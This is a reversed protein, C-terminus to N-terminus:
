FILNKFKQIVNTFSIMRPNSDIYEKIPEARIEKSKENMENIEDMKKKLIQSSKGFNLAFVNKEAIIENNKAPINELSTKYKQNKEIFTTIKLGSFKSNDEYKEEYKEDMDELFTIDNDEFNFNNENESEFLKQLVETKEVIIEDGFMKLIKTLLDILNLLPSDMPTSFSENLYDLFDKLNDNIDNGELLPSIDSLYAAEKQLSVRNELDYHSRVVYDFFHKSRYYYHRFEHNKNLGFIEIPDEPPTNIIYEFIDKNQNRGLSLLFYNTKKVSIEIHKHQETPLLIEKYFNNMILPNFSNFWNFRSEDFIKTFINKFIEYINQPFKAIFNLFDDIKYQFDYESYNLLNSHAFNCITQDTYLSRIKLVSLYFFLAYKIPNKNELLFKLIKENRAPNKRKDEFKEITLCNQKANELIKQRYESMTSLYLGKYIKKSINVSNKQSAEVDVEM